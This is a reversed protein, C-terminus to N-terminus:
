DSILPYLFGPIFFLVLYLPLRPRRFSSQEAQLNYYRYQTGRICYRYRVKYMRYKGKLKEEDNFLALLEEATELKADPM